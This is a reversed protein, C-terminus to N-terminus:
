SIVPLLAKIEPAPEVSASTTMVRVPPGPAAPIEASSTGALVGPM